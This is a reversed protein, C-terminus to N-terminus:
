RLSLKNEANTKNQRLTVLDGVMELLLTKM